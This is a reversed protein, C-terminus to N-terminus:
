NSPSDFCQVSCHRCHFFVNCTKGRMYGGCGVCCLSCSEAKKECFRGLLIPSIHFIKIWFPRRNMVWEGVIEVTFAFVSKKETALWKGTGKLFFCTSYRCRYASIENSNGNNIDFYKRFQRLNFCKEHCNLNPIFGQGCEVHSSHFSILISNHKMSQTRSSGVKELKEQM